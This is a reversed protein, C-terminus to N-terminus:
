LRIYSKFAHSKWRGLEMIKSDTLGNVSAESAAGIRFSHSTFNDSAIGASILAKRLVTSFQYRSISNGNAHCFLPGPVNPRHLLFRHLILVPCTATNNGQIRIDAGRGAQDTKSFPIHVDIIRCNDLTRIKVDNVRILKHEEGLKTFVIEGVRLFGYYALSFAASFLLTEYPSSCVVYLRMLVKNLIELTIPLRADKSPNARKMGELMKKVIFNQSLDFNQSFKCRFNISAIYCAATKSSKDNLSLFAIFMTIHPVPPPWVVPLGYQVRFNEFCQIGTRYSILTNKALSADLM